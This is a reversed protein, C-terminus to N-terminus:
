KFAQKWTQSGIVVDQGPLDWFRDSLYLLIEKPSLRISDNSRNSGSSGVTKKHGSGDIGSIQQNPVQSIVGPKVQASPKSRVEELPVDILDFREVAQDQWLGGDIRLRLLVDSENRPPSCTECQIGGLKNVFHFEGGCKKCVSARRGIFRSVSANLM